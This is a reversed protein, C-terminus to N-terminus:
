GFDRRDRNKTKAHARTDGQTNEFADAHANPCGPTRPAARSAPPANGFAAGSHAFLM